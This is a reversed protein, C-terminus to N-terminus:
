SRKGELAAVQMQIIDLEASLRAVAEAVIATAELQRSARAAWDVPPVGLWRALTTTAIGLRERADAEWASLWHMSPM